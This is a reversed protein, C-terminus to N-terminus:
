LENAKKRGLKALQFCSVLFWFMNVIVFPYANNVYANVILLGSGVINPILFFSSDNKVKGLLNASYAVLLMIAGLWGCLVVIDM